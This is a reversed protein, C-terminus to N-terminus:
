KWFYEKLWEQRLAEEDIEEDGLFKDYENWFELQLKLHENWPNRDVSEVIEWSDYVRRYKKGNGVGKSRRVAKNAFRKDKKKKRGRDKIIPNKRYSRSM